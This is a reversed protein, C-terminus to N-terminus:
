GRGVAHRVFAAHPSIRLNSVVLDRIHRKPDILFTARRVGLRLPGAVEYMRVVCRDVDSLLPFPLRHEDRFAHHSEPSQPSIGALEFGAEEIWHHLDRFCCAQRTCCPTFDAPYFYLILPGRSLLGSLSVSRGDADQLTFEPARAGIALM